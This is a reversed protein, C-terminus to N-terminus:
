REKTETPQEHQWYLGGPLDVTARKRTLNWTIAGLKISVSSLGRRGFNLRFPGASHRRRYRLSM